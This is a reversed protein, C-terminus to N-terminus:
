MQLELGFFNGRGQAAARAQDRTQVRAPAGPFVGGGAEWWRHYGSFLLIFMARLPNKMDFKM